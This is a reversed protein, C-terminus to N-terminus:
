INENDQNSLREGSLSNIYEWLKCFALRENENQFNFTNLPSITEAYDLILNKLNVEQEFTIM